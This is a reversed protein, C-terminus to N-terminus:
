EIPEIRQKLTKYPCKSCKYAEFEDETLDRELYHEDTCYPKTVRKWQSPKGVEIVNVKHTITQEGRKEEIPQPDYEEPSLSGPRLDEDRM